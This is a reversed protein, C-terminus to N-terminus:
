RWIRLDQHSVAGSGLLLYRFLNLWIYPNFRDVGQYIIDRDRFMARLRPEGLTCSNRNPSAILVLSLLADSAFGTMDEKIANLLTM